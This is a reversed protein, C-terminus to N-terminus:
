LVGRVFLRRDISTQHTRSPWHFDRQLSPRNVFMARSITMTHGRTTACIRKRVFTPNGRCGLIRSISFPTAHLRHSRLGPIEELLHTSDTVESPSPGHLRAPERFRGVHAALVPDAAGGEVHPLGFVAAEFYRIGFPQLRELVLIGLQLLQQGLSVRYHSASPHRKLFNHRGGGINPSLDSPSTPQKSRWVLPKTAASRGMRCRSM